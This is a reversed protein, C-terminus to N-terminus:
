KSHKVVRLGRSEIIKEVEIWHIPRYNTQEVCCNVYRDDPVINYHIHGHVNIKTKEHHDYDGMLIPRHTMVVNRFPQWSEYIKDFYKIYESMHFKDHNGLILRKKGNLRPMIENFVRGNLAVDGLFYIKDHKGVVENYWQILKEDHDQIDTFGPRLPTGDSRKFNLCNAHGFHPDSYIWINM